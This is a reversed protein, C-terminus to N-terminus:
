MPLTATRMLAAELTKTGQFYLQVLNFVICSGAADMCDGGSGKRMAAGVCTSMLRRKSGCRGRWTPVAPLCCPTSHADTTAQSSMHQPQQHRMIHRDHLCSRLRTCHNNWAQYEPSVHQSAPFAHMAAHMCANGHQIGHALAAWLYTGSTSVM